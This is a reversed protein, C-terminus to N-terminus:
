KKEFKQKFQIFSDWAPYWVLICTVSHWPWKHQLSSMNYSLFVRTRVRPCWKVYLTYSIVRNNRFSCIRNECLTNIWFWPAFWFHSHQWFSELEMALIRKSNLSIWAYMWSLIARLQCCFSFLPEFQSVFISVLESLDLTSVLCTRIDHQAQRLMWFGSYPLFWNVFCLVKVQTQFGDNGKM